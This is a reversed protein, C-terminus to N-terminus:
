WFSFQSLDKWLQYMPLGIIATYSGNMSKFFQPGDEIKIAGAAEIAGSKEIYPIILEDPVEFEYTAHAYGIVQKIVQWSGNKFIKKELCYATGCQNIGGRAAKVKAIADAMDDPKGSIAGTTDVSLTDATLVFAIQGDIGQPMIVHQMKHIAISEVVKQLSLGWDCQSEDAEQQIIEFPIGARELLKKRSTSKSALYLINKM